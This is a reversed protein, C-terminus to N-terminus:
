QPPPQQNTPPQNQPQQRQRELSQLERYLQEPTKPTNAQNQDQPNQPPATQEPPMQQQQVPNQDPTAIPAVPPADSSEDRDPVDEEDSDGNNVNAPRQPQIPRNAAPFSNASSSPQPETTGQRAMLLIRGVGNPQQPTGMVVFDFRSSGLLAAMVDRPQGPGLHVVVRDSLNTPGDLIAGTARRIGGLIDGLTSNPADISLLGNQFTVRPAVPPQQALTPPPPPPAPVAAVVVEAPPKAIKKSSKKSATRKSSSTKPSTPEAPVKPAAQAFVLTASLLAVSISAFRKM